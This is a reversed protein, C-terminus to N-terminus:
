RRLKRKEPQKMKANRIFNSYDKKMGALDMLDSCVTEFCGDLTGKLAQLVTLKSRPCLFDEDLMAGLEMMVRLKDDHDGGYLLQLLDRVAVEVADPIRSRAHDRSAKLRSRDTAIGGLKDFEGEKALSDILKRDERVEAKRVLPLMGRAFTRVNEPYSKSRSIRVLLHRDSERAALYAARMLDGDTRASKLLAEPTGEASGTDICETGM